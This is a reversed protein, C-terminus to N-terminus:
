DATEITCTGESIQLATKEELRIEISDGSKMSYSRVVDGYDGLIEAKMESYEGMMNGLSSFLSSWSGSSESDLADYASGLSGYADGLREGETEICTITYKGEPIDKGVVYKGERLKRSVPASKQRGGPASPAAAGSVAVTFTVSKGSGDAVSATVSAEGPAIAVVDGDADVMAVEPNSSVLDLGPNTADKPSVTFEPSLAENVQLTFKKKAMKVSSVPVIVEATCAESIETGDSLTVSCTIVATGPSVGKVAGGSVAAVTKDSTTWVPKGAKVGEQLDRVEATLKQSKGKAILIDTESLALKTRLRSKQEAQIADLAQALEEDTASSYDLNIEAPACGATLALLLAAALAALRKM